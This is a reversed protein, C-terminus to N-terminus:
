GGTAPSIKRLREASAEIIKQTEYVKLERITQEIRKVAGEIANVWLRVEDNKEFKRRIEQNTLSIIALPNNINDQLVATVDDLIENQAQQRELEQQYIKREEVREGLRRRLELVQIFVVVAIWMWILADFQLVYDFVTRKERVHSFLDISAFLYYSYILLAGVVVPYDSIIRWVPSLGKKLSNMAIVM